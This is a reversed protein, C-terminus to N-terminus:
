ESTLVLLSCYGTRDASGINLWTLLGTLGVLWLALQRRLYTRFRLDVDRPRNLQEQM